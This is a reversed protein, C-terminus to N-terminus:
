TTSTSTCAVVLSGNTMDRGLRRWPGIIAPGDFLRLYVSPFHMDYINCYEVGSIDQKYGISLTLLSCMMALGDTPFRDFPM